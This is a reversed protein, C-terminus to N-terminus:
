ILKEYEKRFSIAEKKTACNKQYINGRIRISAHWRGTSAHTVGKIGSTNNKFIGRNHQNNSFTTIKLNSKRNDLPNRNVHDVYKNGMLYKHLRITKKNPPKHTVYGRSNISWRCSLVKEMDEKDIYGVGSITKDRKEFFIVCTNGNVKHKNIRM